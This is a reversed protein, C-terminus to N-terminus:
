EVYEANKDTKGSGNKQALRKWSLNRQWAVTLSLFHKNLLNVTLCVLLVYVVCTYCYNGEVKNFIWMGALKGLTYKKSVGHLNKNIKM